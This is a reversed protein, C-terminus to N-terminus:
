SLFSFIFVIRGELKGACVGYLKLIHKAGESISESTLIAMNHAEKRLDELAEDTLPNDNHLTKV